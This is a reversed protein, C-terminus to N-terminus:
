RTEGLDWCWTGATQEELSWSHGKMRSLLLSIASVEEPGGECGCLGFLAGGFLWSWLGLMVSVQM